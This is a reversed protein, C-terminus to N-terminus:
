DGVVESTDFLLGAFAVGDRDQAYKLSEQCSPLHEIFGIFRPDTGEFPQFKAGCFQCDPLNM